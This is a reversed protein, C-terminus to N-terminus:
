LKFTVDEAGSGADAVDEVRSRPARSEGRPHTGGRWLLGAVAAEGRADGQEGSGGGGGEEEAPPAATSVPDRRTPLKILPDAVTPARV